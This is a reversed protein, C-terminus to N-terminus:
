LHPMRCIACTLQAAHCFHRVNDIFKKLANVFVQSFHRRNLSIGSQLRPRNSECWMPSTAIARYVLKFEWYIGKKGTRIVKAVAEDGVWQEIGDHPPRPFRARPVSGKARLHKLVEVAEAMALVRLRDERVENPALHSRLPSLMARFVLATMLPLLTTVLPSRADDLALLLVFSLWCQFM